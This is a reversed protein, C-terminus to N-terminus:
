TGHDLIKCGFASDVTTELKDGTVLCIKINAKNIMSLTEPVRDQLIDEVATAGLLSFDKELEAVVNMIKLAKHNIATKAQEYKYAWNKYFSQSVTRECIMLTRLGQSAYMCVHDM